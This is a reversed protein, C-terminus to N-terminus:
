ILRGRSVDLLLAAHCITLVLEDVNKWGLAGFLLNGLDVLLHRRDHRAHVGRDFLGAVPPPAPGRVFDTRVLSADVDELDVVSRALRHFLQAPAQFDEVLDDAVDDDTDVLLLLDDLPGAGPALRTGLPAAHLAPQRRLALGTLSPLRLGLVQVVVTVISHLNLTGNPCDRDPPRPRPPSLFPESLCCPCRRGINRRRLTQLNQASLISSM